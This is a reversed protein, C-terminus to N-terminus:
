ELVEGTEKDVKPEIYDEDYTVSISCEKGYFESMMMILDFEGRDEVTVIPRNNKDIDLVGKINLKFNKTAKQAMINEGKYDNQITM